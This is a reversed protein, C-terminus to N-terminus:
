SRAPRLLDASAKIEMRLAIARALEARDGSAILPIGGSEISARVPRRSGRYFGLGAGIRVSKM